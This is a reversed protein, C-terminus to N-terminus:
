RSEKEEGVSEGERRGVSFDGPDEASGPLGDKGEDVRNAAGPLAHAISNARAFLISLKQGHTIAPTDNGTIAAFCNRLTSCSTFALLHSASPSLDALFSCPNGFFFLYIHCM